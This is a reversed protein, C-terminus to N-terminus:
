KHLVFLSVDFGGREVLMMNVAGCHASFGIKPEPENLLNIRKKVVFDVFDDESSMELSEHTIAFFFYIIM